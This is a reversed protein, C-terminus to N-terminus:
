LPALRYEHTALPCCAAQEASQGGALRCGELVDNPTRPIIAASCDTRQEQHGSRCRSRLPGVLFSTQLSAQGVNALSPRSGPLDRVTQDKPKTVLRMAFSTRAGVAFRGSRRALRPDTVVLFFLCALAISQHSM